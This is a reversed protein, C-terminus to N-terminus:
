APTYSKTKLLPHPSLLEMPFFGLELQQDHGHFRFKLAPWNKLLCTMLKFWRSSFFVLFCWGSGPMITGITLQTLLHMGKM